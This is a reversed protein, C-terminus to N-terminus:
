EFACQITVQRGVMSGHRKIEHKCHKLLKADLESGQLHEVIDYFHEAYLEENGHESIELERNLCMMKEENIYTIESEKPSSEDAVLTIGDKYNVAVIKAKISNNTVPSIYIIKKGALEPYSKKRENM